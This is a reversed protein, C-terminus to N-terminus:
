NELRAERTEHLFVDELSPEDERVYEIKGGHLRILRLLDQMVDESEECHVRIISKGIAPNLTRSTVGIIQDIQEIEKKTESTFNTVEMELIDEGKLRKKLNDPTDCEVLKGKNLFAIRDCLLDAEEMYHTTIIVTQGLKRNLENKILKRVAIASPPDLGITPEDLLFLPTLFLFGKALALKQRMGSSLTSPSVDRKEWLGVTKLAEETRQRAIEKSLGYVTAVFELNDRVSLAWNLIRWSSSGVLSVSARVDYRDELLDYGNVLATGEDPLLLGSLLKILTTKGAGNPGVIGFFEGKRVNFDVHDVATIYEGTKEKKKAQFLKKIGDIWMTEWMQGRAFPEYKFRKTLGHTEVALVM